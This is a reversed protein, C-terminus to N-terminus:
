SMEMGSYGGKRCKKSIEGDKTKLRNRENRIRDLNKVRCMWRLMRMRVVDLETIRLEGYSVQCIAEVDLNIM